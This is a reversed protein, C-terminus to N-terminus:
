EARRTKAEEWETWLKTALECVTSVPLNDMEKRRQALALFEIMQLCSAKFKMVARDKHAVFGRLPGVGRAFCEEFVRTWKVTDARTSRIAKQAGIDSVLMMVVHYMEREAFRVGNFFSPM